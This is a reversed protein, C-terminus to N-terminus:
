GEKIENLIEHFTEVTKMRGEKQEMGISNLSNVAYLELSTARKKM